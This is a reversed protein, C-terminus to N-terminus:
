FRYPIQDTDLPLRLKDPADHDYPRTPMNVFFLDDAGINQVAHVVGAPIRLLGKNSTDFYLENIAGHTPSGERADYLVARASGWGYFLRDDQRRHVVWGKIGGPRISATYVYVLARDDFEWRPDFMETLTGRDDTQTVARRVQVGQIPDRPIREGEPTVTPVDPVPTVTLRIAADQVQPVRENL